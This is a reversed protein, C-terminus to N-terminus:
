DYRYPDHVPKLIKTFIESFSPTKLRAALSNLYFGNFQYNMNCSLIAIERTPIARLLTFVRSEVTAM